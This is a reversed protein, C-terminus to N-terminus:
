WNGIDDETGDQRDPGMSWVDPKDQNHGGSANYMYPQGWPDVPIDRELYPGAWKSPDPVGAPMSRLDALESPYQGVGFQYLRNANDILEVQSKAANIYANRQVGTFVNVAISGLIVLIALVLLVEMLTFGRRARRRNRHNTM